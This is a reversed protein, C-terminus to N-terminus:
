GSLYMVENGVLGFKAVTPKARGGRYGYIMTKERLAELAELKMWLHFLKWVRNSDIRSYGMGEWQTKTLVM